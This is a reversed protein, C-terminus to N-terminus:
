EESATWLLFMTAGMVMTFLAGTITERVWFRAPSSSSYGYTESIVLGSVSTVAIGM